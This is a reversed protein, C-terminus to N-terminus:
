ENIFFEELKKFSSIYRAGPLNEEIKRPGWTVLICDIEANTATNYDITNDGVYIVRSKNNFGMNKMALEVGEKNPKPNAVTDRCILTEFLGELHCIKIAELSSKTIKNTVVGLRYGAEKLKHLVELQDPYITLKDKYVRLAIEHWKDLLVQLDYGPFENQLTREIPPGSFYYLEPKTRIKIPKFYDYLEVFADAIAEDSNVITGDMDFLILDYNKPM